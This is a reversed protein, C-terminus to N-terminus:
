FRDTKSPLIVMDRILVHRPRSLMFLIADSIDQPTLFGSEKLNELREPDWDDLLPTEVPGPLVAGMRIGKKAVQCRTAHVFAQIAHKSASYVPAPIVTEVGAVSSTVVIDGQGQALMPKLAAQITKMAGNVNIDLMGDWAAPDNDVVDGDIYSGANALLIDVRGHTAVIKEIAQQISRHDTFDVEYSSASEGLRDIAEDLRVSPRALICLTAGAAALEEAAAFGIGTTGGSIVAIKNSFDM